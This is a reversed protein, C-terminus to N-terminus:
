ETKIFTACIFGSIHGASINLDLMEGAKRLTPEINDIIKGNSDRVDAAGRRLSLIYQERAKNLFRRFTEKNLKELEFMFRAVAANGQGISAFLGRAMEAAATDPTEADPVATDQAAADQGVMNPRAKLEICRSRVTPLLSAPAETNLIFLAHGPPEELMQLFANQANVNMLDADNIVYVKKESESPVVIVDKKLKRIQEVIIGSKDPPKDIYTIDPHIRRSAKDCGICAMCPKEGGHGLCVAAFALLDTHRGSAIYAHSLRSSDFDTQQSANNTNM